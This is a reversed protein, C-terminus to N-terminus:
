RKTKKPDCVTVVRGQGDVVLTPQDGPFQLAWGRPGRRSSEPLRVVSVGPPLTIAPSPGGTLDWRYLRSVRAGEEVIWVVGARQGPAPPTDPRIAVIRGTIPTATATDDSRYRILGGTYGGLWGGTVPLADRLEWRPAPSGDAYRGSQFYPLREAGSELARARPRCIPAMPLPPTGAARAGALRVARVPHEASAGFLWAPDEGGLETLAELVAVQVRYDTTAGYMDRLIPRAAVAGSRGLSRAFEAASETDRGQWVGLLARMARPTQMGPHSAATTALRDSVPLQALAPLLAAAETGVRGKEGAPYLMATHLGVARLHPPLSRDRLLTYGYAIADFTPVSRGLAELSETWVGARGPGARRVARDLDARGGVPSAEMLASAAATVTAADGTDLMDRLTARGGGDPVTALAPVLAPHPSASAARRLAPLAARAAAPSWPATQTALLRLSATRLAPNDLTSLARQRVSPDQWDGVMTLQLTPDPGPWLALLDRRLADPAGPRAALAFARPATAPDRALAVVAGRARPGLRAVEAALADYDFQAPDHRALIDGCQRASACVQGQAVATGPSLALVALSAGILVARM